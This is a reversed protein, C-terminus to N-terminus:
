NPRIPKAMSHNTYGYGLSLYLSLAAKNPAFVNLAMAEHGQKLALQEAQLLAARAHGQRRHDPKVMLQYVFAVTSIGRHLTAYWIYGLADGDPEARIAYIYHGPTDPGQPLLRESESRALALADTPSWRGADVNDQAYGSVSAEFFDAYEGNRLSTLCTM